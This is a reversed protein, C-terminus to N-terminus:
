RTSWLSSRFSSIQVLNVRLRGKPVSRSVGQYTIQAASASFLDDVDTIREAM